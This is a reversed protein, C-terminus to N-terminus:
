PKSERKLGADIRTLGETLNPRDRKMASLWANYLDPNSDWLKQAATAADTFNGVLCAWTAWGRLLIANYPAQKLGEKAEQIGGNFDGQMCKIHARIYFVQWYDPNEKFFRDFETQMEKGHKANIAITLWAATHVPWGRTEKVIRGLAQFAKEFDGVSVAQEAEYQLLLSPAANERRAAELSAKALDPKGEKAYAGARIFLLGPNHPELDLARDFLERSEAENRKEDQAQLALCLWTLTVTQRPSLELARRLEAISKEITPHKPLLGDVVCRDLAYGLGVHAEWLHPAAQVAKEAAQYAEKFQCHNGCRFAHGVLALPDSAGEKEALAFADEAEAYSGASDFCFGAAILAQLNPRNALKRSLQDARLYAAGAPGPKGACRLAEGLAFQAEEFEPDITLADNLLKTANEFLQGRMLLDTAQAYPAFAAVRKQNKEASANLARQADLEAQLRKAHEAEQAQKAERAQLEKEATASQALQKDLEAQLRQAHENKTELEQKGVVIGAVIIVALLAAGAIGAWVLSRANRRAFRKFREAATDPLASISDGSAYARLDRLLEAVSEYRDKRERALCKQVIAVIAKPLRRGHVHRPLPIIKGKATNVLMDKVSAGKFPTHGSLIEYLLVGLGFVDVREDIKEDGAIQEPAMYGPTGVIMGDMTLNSEGVENLAKSDIKGAIPGDIKSKSIRAPRPKEEPRNEETPIEPAGLVKALGWDLVWVEGHDGIMVNAPKLDRHVVRHAHAFDIAECVREFISLLRTLPFEARVKTDTKHWRELLEHLSTGSVLKMSFFGAGSADWNLYHVPVIGPHELQGAIQAEMIFRMEKTSSERADPLLMKIAIDRKLADDRGKLVLGMGGRGIESIIQYPGLAKPIVNSAGSKRGTSESLATPKGV